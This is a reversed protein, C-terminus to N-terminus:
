ENKEVGTVRYYYTTYGGIQNCNPNAEFYVTYSGIPTNVWNDFVYKAEATGDDNVHYEQSSIDIPFRDAVTIGTTEADASRARWIDDNLAPLEGRFDPFIAYAANKLLDNSTVMYEGYEGMRPFEGSNFSDAFNCYFAMVDWFCSEDDMDPKWYDLNKEICNFIVAKSLEGVSEESFVAEAPIASSDADPISPQDKTSSPASSSTTSEMGLKRFTDDISMQLKQIDVSYYDGDYEGSGRVTVRKAHEGMEDSYYDDALDVLVTNEVNEFEGSEENWEYKVHYVKSFAGDRYWYYTVEWGSDESRGTEIVYGTDSTYTVYIDDWEFEINNEIQDIEFLLEADGSTEQYIYGTYHEEEENKCVAMLEDKGDGTFDILDLYCLGDAEQSNNEAQAMRLTGYRDTLENIVVSYPHVTEDIDTKSESTEGSQTFVAAIEKDRPVYDSHGTEDLWEEMEESGGDESYIEALGSEIANVRNENIKLVYSKDLEETLVGSVPRVSGDSFAALLREETYETGNDLSSEALTRVANDYSKVASTWEKKGTFADGLGAYAETNRDDIKIVDEFVTIAKDYDLESLYRQGLRLKEEIGGSRSKGRMTYIVTSVIALVVAAAMVFILITTKWDKNKITM